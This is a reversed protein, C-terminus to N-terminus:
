DGCPIWQGINEYWVWNGHEPKPPRDTFCKEGVGNRDVREVRSQHSNQVDPNPFKSTRSSKGGGKLGQWKQYNKITIVFNDGKQKLLIANKNRAISLM